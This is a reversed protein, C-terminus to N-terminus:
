YSSIPVNTSLKYMDWTKTEKNYGYIMQGSTALDDYLQELVMNGTFLDYVGYKGDANETKVLGTLVKRTKEPNLELEYESHNWVFYKGADNHVILDSAYDATDCVRGNANVIDSNGDDRSIYYYGPIIDIFNKKNTSVAVETGDIMLLRENDFTETGVRILGENVDYIIYYGETTLTNGAYDTLRCERTEPDRIMLVGGQGSLTSVNEGSYMLEGADNYVDTTSSDNKAFFAHGDSESYKGATVLVKGDADYLSVTEDENEYTFSNGVGKTAYQDQNTIQFDPVFQHKVTDYLKAYGKYMIDGDSINISAIKNTFYIFCEEEKDTTGTTYVVKLYRRVTDDNSDLWEISAAEHPILVEGTASVLAVTNVDGEVNKRLAYLDSGLYEGNSLDGDAPYVDGNPLYVKYTSDSTAEYALGGYTHVGSVTLTGTKVATYSYDPLVAKVEVPDVHAKPAESKAETTDADPGATTGEAESADSGKETSESLSETAETDGGAATSAAATTDAKTSGTFLSQTSQGGNGDDSGCGSLMFAMVAAFALVKQKKMEKTRRPKYIYQYIAHVRNDEQDYNKIM